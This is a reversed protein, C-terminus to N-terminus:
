ETNIALYLPHRIVHVHVVVHLLVCGGSLIFITVVYRRLMVYVGDVIRQWGALAAM